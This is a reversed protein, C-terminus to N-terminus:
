ASGGGGGGTVHVTRCEFLMTNIIHLLSGTWSGHTRTQESQPENRETEEGDAARRRRLVVLSDLHGEMWGALRIAGSFLGENAVQAGSGLLREDFRLAGIAAKRYAMNVGKLSRVERPPGKGCHFNGYSRGYWTTRVRRTLAERTM